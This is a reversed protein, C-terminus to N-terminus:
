DLKDETKNLAGTKPPVPDLGGEHWPHCKGIRKIGLYGGKVAGHVVIAEATYRSCTPAFRCQQGIFQSLTVQYIKIIMLLLPSLLKDLLKNLAKILLSM